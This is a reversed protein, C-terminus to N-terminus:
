ESPLHIIVSKPKGEDKGYLHKIGMREAILLWRKKLWEPDIEDPMDKIALAYERLLDIIMNKGKFFEGNSRKKKSSYAGAEECYAILLLEYFKEEFSVHSSKKGPLMLTEVWAKDFPTSPKYHIEVQKSRFKIAGPM